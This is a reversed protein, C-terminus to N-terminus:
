NPPPWHGRDPMCGSEAFRILYRNAIEQEDVGSWIDFLVRSWESATLVRESRVLQRLHYDTVAQDHEPDSPNWAYVDLGPRYDDAMFELGDICDRSLDFYERTGAVPDILFEKKLM